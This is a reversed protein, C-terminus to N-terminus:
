FRFIRNHLKVKYISNLEDDDEAEELWGLLDPQLKHPALPVVLYNRERHGVTGVPVFVTIFDLMHQFSHRFADMGLDALREAADARQGNLHESLNGLSKADLARYVIPRIYCKLNQLSAHGRIPLLIASQM